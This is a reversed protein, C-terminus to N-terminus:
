CCGGYREYPNKMVKTARFRHVYLVRLREHAGKPEVGRALDDIAAKILTHLLSFDQWQFQM